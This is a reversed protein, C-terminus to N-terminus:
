LTVDIKDQQEQEHEFLLFNGCCENFASHNNVSRDVPINFVESINFTLGFKWLCDVQVNLNFIFICVQLSLQQKEQQCEFLPFNGCHEKLNNVSGGILVKLDKSINIFTM